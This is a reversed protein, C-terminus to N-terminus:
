NDPSGPSGLTAIERPSFGTWRKFAHSFAASESFGVLFAVQNISVKGGRLYALATKRRLDDVVKRFNIGESQLMRQLTRESLGLQQAISDVSLTGTHLHPLLAAEVRGRTSKANQLQEVLLRAHTSLASFVFRPEHAVPHNLLEPDMRLANWDCNFYVPCRFVRRYEEYHAPAPHTIHVELVNPRPLFRRPGCIMRAFTSETLEPFDDPDRRNDVLWIQKGKSELSFRTKEGLDVEVVLQGYRNLQQLAEMMTASAHTLLGVISFESLDIAEGFHLPLAPDNCAKKASRVLAIYKDFSIRDDYDALMECSLGTLALLEDLQGGNAVAYDVLTKVAGVSVSRNTM